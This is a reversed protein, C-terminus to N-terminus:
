SALINLNTNWLCLQLVSGWSTLRTEMKHGKRGKFAL